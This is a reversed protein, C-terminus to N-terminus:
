LLVALAVAIAGVVVVVVTVIAVFLWFRKSSEIAAVGGMPPEPKLDFTALDLTDIGDLDALLDTPRQYRHEPYRRMAKLVIAELSPPIASNLKRPPTPDQNLHAAMTAMWNDGRFPLRGTLLEYLMIGWAYIDSRADGRNGQIQEPSMYDPTGLGETLHRWTLRKAGELRATGFDIVKLDGHETIILNEPKLDRHVVGHEDLYVLVSALQRGWDLATDVPVPGNLGQLHHRFNEGDLFELVLYPESRHEGRDAGHVLGPHDLTRAIEAERRFRAFIAPDAYLLPNPIKLVVTEGTTTDLAKYSEAFAGEGLSEVIQFDDIHSGPEYRM